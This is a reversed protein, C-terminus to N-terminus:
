LNNFSGWPVGLIGRGGGANLLTCLAQLLFSRRKSCGAVERQWLRFCCPGSIVRTLLVALHSTKCLRPFVTVGGKGRADKFELGLRREGRGSLVPGCHLLLKLLRRPLPPPATFPCAAALSGGRRPLPEEWNLARWDKVKESPGGGPIHTSSLRQSSGWSGTEVM